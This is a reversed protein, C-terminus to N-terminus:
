FVEALQNASIIANKVADPTVAFPMNHILANPVCALESVEQLLDDPPTKIGLDSLTLPLGIKRYFDLTTKIEAIPANELVLQALLGFSVIEGHLAKTAGLVELPGLLGHAAAVGVSEFGIGSMVINTEIIEELAPTVVNKRCAILALEGKELLVHHSLEALGYASITSLGENNLVNAKKCARAEFYTAYADGMGSILFREPAKAIIATDILVVDPSKRLFYGDIIIHADNYVIALASCPADTAAITPVSLLPLRQKDSFIKATDIAKGGGLGVVVDIDAAGFTTELRDVEGYSCEGGFEANLLIAGDKKSVRDLTEQVRKRDEAHAILLAKKGYLSIYKGLDNLVDRGLIIKSPSVIVKKM